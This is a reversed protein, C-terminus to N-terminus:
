GEQPALNVWRMVREYVNKAKETAWPHLGPIDIRGCVAHFGTHSGVWDPGKHSELWRLVNERTFEGIERLEDVALYHRTSTIDSMIDIYAMSKAEM